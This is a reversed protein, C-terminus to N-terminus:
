CTSRRTPAASSSTPRRRLGLRLGAAGPLAARAALDARRRGLAQRLRRARAAARRDSPARAPVPGGDAHRAVRRQPAGRAARGDVCSRAGGPAPLDRRQRRDARGVAGAAHGLPGVPRGRARHLRGRDARGHARRGPVRAAQDARRHPRPPHRAGDPRARAQRAAPPGARHAGRARGRAPLRGRQPGPPRRDAGGRLSPEDMRGLALTEAERPGLGRQKSVRGSAARRRVGLPDPRGGPFPPSTALCILSDSRSMWGAPSMAVRVGGSRRARRDQGRRPRRAGASSSGRRRPPRRGVRVVGSSASGEGLLLAAGGRGGGRRWPPRRRSRSPSPPPGSPFPAVTVRQECSSGDARAHPDALQAHEAHQKPRPMRAITEVIKPIIIATVDSRGASSSGAPRLETRSRGCRRCSPM